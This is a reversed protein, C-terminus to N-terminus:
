MLVRCLDLKAQVFVFVCLVGSGVLFRRYDVCRGIAM